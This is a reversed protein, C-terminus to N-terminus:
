RGTDVSQEGTGPDMVGYATKRDDQAFHLIEVTGWQSVNLHKAASLMVTHTAILM